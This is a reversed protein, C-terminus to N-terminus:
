FEKYNSNLVKIEKGSLTIVYIGLKEAEVLAKKDASLAAVVPIIKKNNLHPFLKRFNPLKRNLIDHLNEELLKYKVEVVAITDENELMLDYQDRLKLKKDYRNIDPQYSNFSIGNISMRKVLTNVLITEAADGNSQGIGGVYKHLEKIQKDTKLQALETKLQALETKKHEKALEKVLRETEQFKETLIRDSEQFKKDTEQFMKWVQEFNLNSNNEM